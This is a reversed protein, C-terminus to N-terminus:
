AEEKNDIYPYCISIKANNSAFRIELRYSALRASLATNAGKGETLAMAVRNMIYNTNNM